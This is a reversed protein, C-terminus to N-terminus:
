YQTPTLPDLQLLDKSLKIIKYSTTQGDGTIHLINTNGSSEIRWQGPKLHHADVPSLYLWKASGDKAFQYIMRFHSPGLKKYHEPRFIKTTTNPLEEERVNVWKQLLDQTNIAGAKPPEVASVKQPLAFALGNFLSLTLAFFSLSRFM